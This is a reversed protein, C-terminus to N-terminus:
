QLNLKQLIFFIPCPWTLPWLRNKEGDATSALSSVAELQLATLTSSFPHHRHWILLPGISLLPWPWHWTLYPWRIFIYCSHRTLCASHTMQSTSYSPSVLKLMQAFTHHLEDFFTMNQFRFKQKFFMGKKDLKTKHNWFHWKEQRMDTPFVM